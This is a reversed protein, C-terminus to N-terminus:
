AAIQRSGASFQQCKPVVEWAKNKAVVNLSLRTGFVRHKLGLLELANCYIEWDNVAPMVTFGLDALQTCCHM